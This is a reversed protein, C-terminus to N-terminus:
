IKRSRKTSSSLAAREAAREARETRGRETREREAPTPRNWPFSKRIAAEEEKAAAEAAAAKERAIAPTRIWTAWYDAIMQRIAGSRSRDMLRQIDDIKKLTEKDFRLVVPFSYKRM